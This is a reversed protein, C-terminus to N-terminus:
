LCCENSALPLTHLGNVLKKYNFGLSSSLGLLTSLYFILVPFLGMTAFKKRQVIYSLITRNRAHLPFGTGRRFFSSEVAILQVPINGPGGVLLSTVVSHASMYVCLCICVKYMMSWENTGKSKSCYVEVRFRRVLLLDKVVSEFNM